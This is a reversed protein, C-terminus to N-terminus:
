VGTSYDKLHTRYILKEQILVADGHDALRKHNNSHPM